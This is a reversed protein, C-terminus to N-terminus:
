FNLKVDEKKAEEVEFFKLNEKFGISNAVISSPFTVRKQNFISVNSNYLRRTAKLREEVENRKNMLNLFVTDAKLNPYQEVVVNIERNLSDLDSSLKSKSDLDLNDIKGSRLSTIKSLTESEHKIYGKTSDYLKTILDFRKNLAVDIGSLSEDVKVKAKRFWNM